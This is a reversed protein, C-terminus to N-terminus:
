SGKEDRNSERTSARWPFLNRVGKGRGRRQWAAIEADSSSFSDPYKEKLAQFAAQLESKPVPVLGVVPDIQRCAVLHALRKLDPVLRQDAALSWIRATGDEGATVVARSDARFEASTLRGRHRLRPTVPAGTAASWVQAAGADSFSTARPRVLGRGVTLVFRGDGSFDITNVTAAGHPLLPVARRGAIANWLGALGDHGGVAIRDGERSFSVAEMWRRFELPPAVPQGTDVDWVVATKDRSATALWRSDHSFCVSRVSGGHQLPGTVAAGTDARWVRASGDTSATAILRGDSNFVVDLVMDRHQLSALLLGSETDWIRATGDNCATVLKKETPSFALEHVVDGHQLPETLANGQNNWLRATGDASATAVMRGDPSFACDLVGADHVMAPSRPEGTTANWIRATRDRSATVVWRGDPSFRARTQPARHALIPTTALIALDWLRVTGDDSAVVIRHNDPAFDAYQVVDMQPLPPGLPEITRSDWIRTMGDDGATAFLRGDPSFHAQKVVAGHRAPVGVPEGSELDWIRATGDLSATLVHRGDASFEATRVASDHPLPPSLPEGTKADWVRATTDESATVVRDGDPSFSGYWVTGDHKMPVGCRQGTEVDWLCAESRHGTAFCGGATLVRRGDPSFQVFDVGPPLPSRAVPRRKRPDDGLSNPRSPLEDPRSPSGDDALQCVREGTAADWIGASGGICATAVWRGDPSFAAHAISNNHQLPATVAEGTVSDWIQAVGDAGTSLVRTGDPSFTAFLAGGAHRLPGCVKRGTDVDWVVVTGDDSASVVFRGDLSFEAHRVPGDHVWLQTLKPCQRLISGIRVRHVVPRELLSADMELANAFWVLSGFLDRESLRSVGNAIHLRVLQKRSMAANEDARQRERAEKDGAELAAALLRRERTARIGNVIASTLLLFMVAVSLGAVVPNRRCWRVGKELRGVPTAQIPEGNLWRRLDEALERGSQYRKHVEKSMAKLTITELDRPVKENISRPPKPQENLVQHLLMRQSGRFPMEGCLMRYLVVGLSYIDSPAGVAAHDGVAQEPPMFSPTGLIDGELTVTMDADDRRALGFDSVYSEGNRDILINSTKVDRHIVGHQHAYELADAINAILNAADRFRVVAGKLWDALTQGEIYECVLYPVNNDRAIEHIRVIRPHRLGAANRAERLFRREEEPAEFYHGRPVKIAVTRDLETDYARYVTSFSGRGVVESVVFRGIRQLSSPSPTGLFPRTSGTADDERDSSSQNEATEEAGEQGDRARREGPTAEVEPADQTSRFVMEVFALRWGLVPALDPYKAILSKPDPASGAQLQNLYRKVIESVRCGMESFEASSDGNEDSFSAAM